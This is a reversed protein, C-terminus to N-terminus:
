SAYRREDVSSSAQSLRRPRAAAGRPRARRAPRGRACGCMAGVAEGEPPIADRRGQRGRAAASSGRTSSRRDARGGLRKTYLLTGSPSLKAVVIDIGGYYVGQGGPFDVSRTNAALYVNGAADVAVDVLANDLVDGDDDTGGLYTAYALMPDAQAPTARAATAVLMALAIRKLARDITGTTV